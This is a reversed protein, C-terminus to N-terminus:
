MINEQQENQLKEIINVRDELFNSNKEYLKKLEIIQKEQKEISNNVLGDQSIQTQEIKTIKDELNKIEEQKDLNQINDQFINLQEEQKKILSVITDIKEAQRGSEKGLEDITGINECQKEYVQNVKQEISIIKPENKELNAIKETNIDQVEFIKTIKEKQYNQEDNLGIKNNKILNIQKELKQNKKQRLQKEVVKM